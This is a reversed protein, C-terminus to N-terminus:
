IPPAWPGLLLNAVDQAQASWERRHVIFTRLAGMRVLVAGRPIGYILTVRGRAPLLQRRNYPGILTLTEANEAATEVDLGPM